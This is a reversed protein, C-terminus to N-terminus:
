ALRTNNGRIDEPVILWRLCYLDLGCGKLSQTPCSRCFVDKQESHIIRGWLRCKNTMYLMIRNASFYEVNIECTYTQILANRDPNGQVEYPFRRSHFVLTPDQDM